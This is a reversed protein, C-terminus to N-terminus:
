EEESSDTSEETEGAEEGREGESATAAAGSEEGGSGPARRASRLRRLESPRRRILEQLIAMRRLERRQAAEEPTRDGYSDSLESRPAFLLRRYVAGWVESHEAAALGDPARCLGWSGRAIEGMLQCRSWGAYGWFVLLRVPEGAARRAAAGEAAAAAGRPRRRWCGWPLQQSRRRKQPPPGAAGEAAAAREAMALGACLAGPERVVTQGGGSLLVCASVEEDECPGGLLHTVQAPPAGPEAGGPRGFGARRAAAEFVRRRAPRSLDVPRTLNVAVIGDEGCDAAPEPRLRLATPARLASIAARWRHPPSDESLEQLPGQPMLRFKRGRVHLTQSDAELRLLLRALDEHENIALHVASRERDEVVKVILFVGRIWNRCAATEQVVEPFASMQSELERSFEESSGIVCGEEILAALEPGTFSALLEQRSPPPLAFEAKCVGCVRQRTDSEYLDPHSPQSVLVTRQWRRLCDLHVWKQGGTCRCPSILEGAEGGEFCYRCLREEGAGGAPTAATGTPRTAAAPRQPGPAVDGQPRRRAPCRSLWAAPCPGASLAAM